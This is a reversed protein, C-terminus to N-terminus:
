KNLYENKLELTCADLPLRLIIYATYKYTERKYHKALFNILYFM